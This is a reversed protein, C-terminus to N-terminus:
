RSVFKDKGQVVDDNQAGGSLVSRAELHAHHLGERERERETLSVQVAAQEDKGQLKMAIRRDKVEQAKRADIHKKEEQQQVKIAM